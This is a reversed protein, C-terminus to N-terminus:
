AHAFNQMGQCASFWQVLRTFGNPTTRHDVLWVVIISLTNSIFVNISMLLLTIFYGSSQNALNRVTGESNTYTLKGQWQYDDDSTTSMSTRFGEIVCIKPNLPDVLCRSIQIISAFVGCAFVLYLIIAVIYLVARLRVRTHASAM